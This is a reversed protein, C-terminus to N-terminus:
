PVFFPGDFVGFFMYQPRFLYLFSGKYASWGSWVALVLERRGGEGERWDGGGWRDGALVGRCPCM